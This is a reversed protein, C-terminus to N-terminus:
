KAGGKHWIAIGACVEAARGARQALACQIAGLQQQYTRTLGAEAGGAGVENGVVILHACRDLLHDVGALVAKEAGAQGAGGPAFLENSLWTGLCEILAAGGEPVTLATLACGREVTRFGKGARAARHRAIRRRCEDDQPLLTAIYLRPGPLRSLLQEALATKGSGSGGILLTLEGSM